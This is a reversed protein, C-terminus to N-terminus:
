QQGQGPQEGAIQAVQKDPGAATKEKKGKDPSRHGRRSRSRSYSCPTRYTHLCVVLWSDHPRFAPPRAQHRFTTGDSRSATTELCGFYVLVLSVFLLPMPEQKRSLTSLNTTISTCIYMHSAWALRGTRTHIRVLPTKLEGARLIFCPLVHFYLCSTYFVLLFM